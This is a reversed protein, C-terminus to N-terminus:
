QCTASRARRPAMRPILAMTGSRRRSITREDFTRLKEGAVYAEWTDYDLPLWVRGAYAEIITDYLDVLQQRLRATIALADDRTMTSVVLEVAM